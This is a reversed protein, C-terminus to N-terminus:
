ENKIRLSLRWTMYRVIFVDCLNNRKNNQILSLFFHLLNLFLVSRFLVNEGLLVYKCSDSGEDVCAFSLWSCISSLRVAATGTRPSSMLAETERMRFLCYRANYGLSM